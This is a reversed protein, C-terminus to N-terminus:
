SAIQAADAATLGLSEARGADACSRHVVPEDREAIEPERALSTGRALGQEIVVAPEYAGIADGCASCRLAQVMAVVIDGGM